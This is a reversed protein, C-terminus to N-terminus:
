CADAVAYGYWVSLEVIQVPYKQNRAPASGPHIKLSQVKLEAVDKEKNKSRFLHCKVLSMNLIPNDESFTSSKVIVNGSWM